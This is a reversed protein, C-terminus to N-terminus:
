GMFEIIRAAPRYTATPFSPVIVAVVSGLSHVVTSALPVVCFKFETHLEPERNTATPSTPVISVDGSATVHVSREDGTVVESREIM